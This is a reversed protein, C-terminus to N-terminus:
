DAIKRLQLVRNKHTDSVFIDGNHDIVIDKPSYLEMSGGDRVPLKGRIYEIINTSNPEYINIKGMDSDCVYLRNEADLALGYPTDLEVNYVKNDKGIFQNQNYIRNATTCESEFYLVRSLHTDSVYIGNDQDILVRFPHRFGTRSLRDNEMVNSQFDSQGYLRPPITPDNSVYLVRNYQSDTVYIGDKDDIAIGEIQIRMAQSEHPIIENQTIFRIPTTSDPPYVVIRESDSVYLNNQSDLALSTPYKLFLRGMIPLRGYCRLPRTFDNKKFYLVRNNETDAIYLGGFKDLLLGEPEFLENLHIDIQGLQQLDSETFLHSISFNQIIYVVEYM